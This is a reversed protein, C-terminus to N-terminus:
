RSTNIKSSVILELVECTKNSVAFVSTAKICIIIFGYSLIIRLITSPTTKCIINNMDTMDNNSLKIESTNDVNVMRKTINGNIANAVISSIMYLSIILFITVCQLGLGLVVM